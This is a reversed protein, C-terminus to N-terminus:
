AFSVGTRRKSDVNIKKLARVANNTDIVTGHFHIHTENGGGLGMGSKLPIVAEDYNKEGIHALIGGRGGRVIGGEAMPKPVIGTGKSSGKHKNPTVDTGFSILPIHQGTVQNFGKIVENWVGAILRADKIIMAVYAGSAAATGRFVEMGGYGIGYWLDSWAKGVQGLVEGNDYGFKYLGKEFDALGNVLGGLAGGIQEMGKIAKPDGIADLFGGPESIKDLFATIGPTISAGITEQFDNWKATFIAIKGSATQGFKDAYGGVKETTLRMLEEFNGAQTGTDKFQIGVDKLGRGQGLMAKGFTLAAEPLDKGTKRAYDVLLPTLKTIQRGTLKYAGLQAQAAVIADDDYGTKREITKSLERMKGINTDALKPFRAYADELKQQQVEADMYAKVSAEGFRVVAGISFAGVLAGALRHASKEVHGLAKSASVDKGYIPFYLSKTAV